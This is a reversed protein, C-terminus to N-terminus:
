HEMLVVIAETSNGWAAHHVSTDGWRDQKYLNAGNQLLLRIVDTRNNIAAVFLATDDDGDACDTPLGEELLEKM